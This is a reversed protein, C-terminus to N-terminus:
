YKGNEHEDRSNSKRFNLRLTPTGCRDMGCFLTTCIAIQKKKLFRRFFVSHEIHFIYKPLLHIANGVLFSVIRFLFLFFFQSIYIQPIKQDNWKECRM